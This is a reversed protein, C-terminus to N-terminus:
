IESSRPLNPPRARARVRCWPRWIQIAERLKPDCVDGSHVNLHRHLCRCRHPPSAGPPSVDSRTPGTIVTRAHMCADLFLARAIGCMPFVDIYMLSEAVEISGGEPAQPHLLREILARDEAPTTYEGDAGLDGADQGRPRGDGDGDGVQSRHVGERGVCQLFDDKNDDGQEHMIEADEASLDSPVEGGCLIPASPPHVNDPDNQWNQPVDGVVISDRDPVTESGIVVVWLCSLLLRHLMVADTSRPARWSAFCSYFDLLSFVSKELKLCCRDIPHTYRALIIPFHTPSPM